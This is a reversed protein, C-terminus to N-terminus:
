HMNFIQVDPDHMMETGVSSIFASDANTAQRRLRKSVIIVCVEVFYGVGLGRVRRRTESDCAIEFEDGRIDEEVDDDRKSLIEPAEEPHRVSRAECEVRLLTEIERKLFHLIIFIYVYGVYCELSFM